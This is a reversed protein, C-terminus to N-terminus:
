VIRKLSLFTMSGICANGIQAVPELLGLDFFGDNWYELM